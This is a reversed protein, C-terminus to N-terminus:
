SSSRKNKKRDYDNAAQMRMSEAILAHYLSQGPRLKASLAAMAEPDQRQKRASAVAEKFRQQRLLQLPSNFRRSSQMKRVFQKGGRQYFVLTGAVPGSLGTTLMNGTVAAMFLPKPSGPSVGFYAREGLFAITVGKKISAFVFCLRLL